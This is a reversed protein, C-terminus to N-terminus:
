EGNEEGEERQMNILKSHQGINNLPVSQASSEAGTM